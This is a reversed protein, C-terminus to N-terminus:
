KKVLEATMYGCLKPLRAYDIVFGLVWEFL